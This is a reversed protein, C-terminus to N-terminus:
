VLVRLHAQRHANQTFDSSLWNTFGSGLMNVSTQQAYITHIGVRWQGHDGDFSLPVEYVLRLQLTDRIFFIKYIYSISKLEALRSWTPSDQRRSGCSLPPYWYLLLYLLVDFRRIDPLQTVILQLLKKQRRRLGTHGRDCATPLVHPLAIGGLRCSGDGAGSSLFDCFADCKSNRKQKQNPEFKSQSIRRTCGSQSLNCESVM